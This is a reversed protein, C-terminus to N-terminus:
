AGCFHYGGGAHTGGRSTSTVATSQPTNVQGSGNIQAPTTALQGILARFTIASTSGAQAASATFPPLITIATPQGGPQTANLVQFVVSATGSINIKNGGTALSNGAEYAATGSTMNPIAPVTVSSPPSQALVVAGSMALAGGILRTIWTAPM